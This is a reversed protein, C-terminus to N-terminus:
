KFKIQNQFCFLFPNSFPFIKEGGRRAPRGLERGGLWVARKGRGAEGSPRWEQLGALSWHRMMVRRREKPRARQGLGAYGCGRRRKGKDMQCGTGRERERQSMSGM